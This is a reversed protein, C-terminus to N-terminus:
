SSTLWNETDMFINSYNVALFWTYDTGTYARLIGAVAKVLEMTTVREHVYALFFESLSLSWAFSSSLLCACEFFFCVLVCLCSLLLAGPEHTVALALGLIIVSTFGMEEWVM